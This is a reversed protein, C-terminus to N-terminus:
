SDVRIYYNRVNGHYDKRRIVLDPGFELKGRDLGKKIGPWVEKWIRAKLRRKKETRERWWQLKSCCCNKKHPVRVPSCRSDRRAIREETDSLPGNSIGACIDAVLKAFDEFPLGM